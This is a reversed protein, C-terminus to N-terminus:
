AYIIGNESVKKIQTHLIATKICLKYSNMKCVILFLDYIGKKFKQGLITYTEYISSFFCSM